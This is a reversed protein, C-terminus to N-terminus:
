RLDLSNASADIEITGPPQWLGDRIVGFLIAALLDATTGPNRRHGDERLWADFTEIEKPPPTGEEWGTLLASARRQVEAAFEEGLKRLILSDSQRAIFEIHVRVLAQDWPLGHGIANLFRQRGWCLVDEFRHAYQWAIRDHPALAMIDVIPLEPAAAVDNSSAKGLGGPQALRIAEFILATQQLDIGHLVKEIGESCSLHPPIAALPALLLIMGLNTNSGVAQKTAAVADRIARGVGLTEANALIPAIVEASTRFDQDTVDAFSHGPFVNGPKPATCELICATRIQQSISEALLTLTHPM